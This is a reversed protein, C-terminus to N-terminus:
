VNELPQLIIMAPLTLGPPRAGDINTIRCHVMRPSNQRHNTDPLYRSREDHPVNIKRARALRLRQLLCKADLRIRSPASSCNLVRELNRLNHDHWESPRMGLPERTDQVALKM